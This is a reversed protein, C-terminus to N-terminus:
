FGTEYILIYIYLLGIILTPIMLIAPTCNAM